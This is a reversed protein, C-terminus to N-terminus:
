CDVVVVRTPYCPLVCAGTVGVSNVCRDDHPYRVTGLYEKPALYGLYGLLGQELRSLGQSDAGLCPRDLYGPSSLAM